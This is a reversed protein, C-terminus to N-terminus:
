FIAGMSLGTLGIFSLLSGAIFYWKPKMKVKGTKIKQMVLSEINHEIDISKSRQDKIKLKKKPM